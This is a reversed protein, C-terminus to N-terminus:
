RNGRTFCERPSYRSRNTLRRCQKARPLAPATMADFATFAVGDRRLQGYLDRRYARLVAGARGVGFPRIVVLPGEPAPLGHLQRVEPESIGFKLATM